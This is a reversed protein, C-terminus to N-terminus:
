PGAPVCVLDISTTTRPKSEADPHTPLCVVGDPGFPVLTLAGPQVNAFSIVGNSGALLVDGLILNGAADTVLPPDSPQGITVGVGQIVPRVFVSVLGKKEDIVQQVPALVADILDRTFVIISGGVLSGVKPGFLVPTESDWYGDVTARLWVPCEVPLLLTHIPGNRAIREFTYGACSATLDGDILTTTWNAIISVEAPICRFTGDHCPGEPGEPGGADEDPGADEGALDADPVIADTRADLSPGAETASDMSVTADTAPAQPAVPEDGGGSGGAPVGRGGAGSDPMDRPGPEADRDPSRASGDATAPDLPIDTPEFECALLCMVVTCLAIWELHLLRPPGCRM